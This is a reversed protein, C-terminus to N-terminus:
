MQQRPGPKLGLLGLPEQLWGAPTACLGPVGLLFTVLPIMLLQSDSLEMQPEWQRKELRWGCGVCMSWLWLGVGCGLHARELRLHHQQTVGDGFHARAIAPPLLKERAVVHALHAAPKPTAVCHPPNVPRLRWRPPAAALCAPLCAPLGPHMPLRCSSFM